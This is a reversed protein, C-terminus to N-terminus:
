KVLGWFGCPCLQGKVTGGGLSFGYLVLCVVVFYLDNVVVLDFSM